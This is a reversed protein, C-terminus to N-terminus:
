QNTPYHDPEVVLETSPARHDVFVFSERNEVRSVTFLRVVDGDVDVDVVVVLVVQEEPSPRLRTIRGTILPM